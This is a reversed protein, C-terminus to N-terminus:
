GFITEGLRQRNVSSRDAVVRYSTAILRVRRSDFGILSGLSMGMVVCASVFTRPPWLGASGLAPKM